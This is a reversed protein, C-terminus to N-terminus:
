PGASGLVAQALYAALVIGVAVTGFFAAVARPRFFRALLVGEPLSLGAGAMVFALIVGIDVGRNMLGVAVPILLATSGYVPIGLLVALPIAWVSGSADLAELWTDPMYEQILAGLAGAALLYPLLKGLSKVVERAAARHRDRWSAPEHAVIGPTPAHADPINEPRMWREIALAGVLALLMSLGVYVAATRGGFFRLLLLTSTIDVLPSAILFTIVAGIPVRARLLAAVIPVSGCSCFPTVAGALAALVRAAINGRRSALTRALLRDGLSETVLTSVYTALAFFPILELMVRLFFQLYNM